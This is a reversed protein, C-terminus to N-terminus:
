TFIAIDKLNTQIKSLFFYKKKKFTTYIMNGFSFKQLWNAIINQEYM